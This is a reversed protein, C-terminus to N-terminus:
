LHGSTVHALGFNSKQAPGAAPLSREAECCLKKARDHFKAHLVELHGHGPTLDGFVSPTIQSRGGFPLFPFSPFPFPPFPHAPTPLPVYPTPPLSLLLSTLPLLLFVPPVPLLVLFLFHLFLPFFPFSPTLALSPLLLFLPLISNPSNLSFHSHYPIIYGTSIM